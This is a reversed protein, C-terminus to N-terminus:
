EPDFVEVLQLRYGARLNSARHPARTTAVVIDGASGTVSVEQLVGREVQDRLVHPPYVGGSGIYDNSWLLYDFRRRWEGDRHSGTWFVLPASDETVDVLLTFAKVQRRWTDTHPVSTYDHVLDPKYDVYANYRWTPGVYARVVDMVKPHRLLVQSPPFAEHIKRIRYIGDAPYAIVDWGGPREGSRVKEVLTRLNQGLSLAQERVHAGRLTVMGNQAFEGLVPDGSAELKELQVAALHRELDREFRWHLTKWRQRAARIGPRLLTGLPSNKIAERLANM